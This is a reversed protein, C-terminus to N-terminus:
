ANSDAARRRFGDIFVALVVVIGLLVSQWYSSIGVLQSGNALVAMLLAGIMSGWVTGEGGFLSAGGIVVAAISNLQYNTGMDPMASNVWALMVIGGVASLVGSLIYVFIIHRNVRM